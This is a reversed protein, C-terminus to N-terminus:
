PLCVPVQQEIKAKCIPCSTLTPGCVRCCAIHGCPVLAIGRPAAACVACESRQQRAREEEHALAARRELIRGLGAHCMSELQEVYDRSTSDGEEPGMPADAGGNAGEDSSYSNLFALFTRTVEEGGDEAVAESAM